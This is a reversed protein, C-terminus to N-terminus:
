WQITGEQSTDVREGEGDGLLVEDIQKYLFARSEAIRPDLGYHNILATQHKLWESWCVTCISAQVRAGREKPLPPRALRPGPAACRRCDIEDPAPSAPMEDNPPATM